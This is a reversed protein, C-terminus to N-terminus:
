KYGFYFAINGILEDISQSTIFVKTRLVAVLLVAPLLFMFKPMPGVSLKVHTSEYLGLYWNDNCHYNTVM